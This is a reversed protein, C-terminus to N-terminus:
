AKQTGLMARKDYARANYIDRPVILINPDQKKLFSIIKRPALGLESLDRIIKRTHDSLKRAVPHAIMYGDPEHNHEPNHVRLKWEGTKRSESAYLRFPCGIRRTSTKRRKAGELAKIRDQYVGGRDCQLYLYKGGKTSSKTTIGYGQSLAHQRLSTMMQDFSAFVQEPPPLLKRTDLSTQTDKSTQANLPTQTDLPPQADLATRTDLPTQMNPSTQTDLTTYANIDLPPLGIPIGRRPDDPPVNLPLSTVSGHITHM